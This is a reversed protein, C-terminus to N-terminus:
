CSIHYIAHSYRSYLSHESSTALLSERNHPGVFFGKESDNLYGQESRKQIKM